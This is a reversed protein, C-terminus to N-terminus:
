HQRTAPIHIISASHCHACIYVCIYVCHIHTAPNQNNTPAEYQESEQIMTDISQLNSSLFNETKM